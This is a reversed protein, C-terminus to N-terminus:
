YRDHSSLIISLFSILSFSSKGPLSIKPLQYPPMLPKTSSQQRPPQDKNTKSRSRSKTKNNNNNNNNTTTTSAITNLSPSSLCENSLIQSCENSHSDTSNERTLINSSHFDNITSNSQFSPSSTISVTQILQKIANSDDLFLRM